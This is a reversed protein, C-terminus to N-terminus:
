IKKEKENLKKIYKYIKKLTKKELDKLPSTKHILNYEFGTECIKGNPGISISNSIDICLLSM